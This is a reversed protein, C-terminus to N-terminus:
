QKPVFEWRAYVTTQVEIPHPTIETTEVNSGTVIV